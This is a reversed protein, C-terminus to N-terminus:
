GRHFGIIYDCKLIEAIDLTAMLITTNEFINSYLISRLFDKVTVSVRSFADLYLIIRPKRLIARALSIKQISRTLLESGM